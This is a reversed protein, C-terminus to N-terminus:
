EVKNFSRIKCLVSPGAPSPDFHKLRREVEGEGERLPAHALMQVVKRDNLLIRGMKM